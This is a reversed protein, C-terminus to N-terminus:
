KGFLVGFDPKEVEGPVIFVELIRLTRYQPFRAKFEGQKFVLRLFRANRGVPVRAVLYPINVIFGFKIGHDPVNRDKVLSWTKGDQGAYVAFDTGYALAWWVLDIRGVMRSEGLDFVLEQDASLIDGSMASGNMYSFDGDVLRGSATESLEPGISEGVYKFDGTILASPGLNGPKTRAKLLGSEARNGARDEIRIRFFFEREQMLNTFFLRHKLSFVSDQFTRLSEPAYGASVSAASEVNAGFSCRLSDAAAVSVDVSRIRPLPVGATRFL